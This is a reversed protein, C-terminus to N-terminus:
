QCCNTDCCASKSPKEAYVTISRIGAGKSRFAEREEERLYNRLIDDPLTIAKDKQVTINTFGNAKILDLYESKQIAGSVCGAYM